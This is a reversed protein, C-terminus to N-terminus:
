TKPGLSSFAALGHHVDPRTVVAEFWAQLRPLSKWDLRDSSARIVTLAAIDALSFSDGAMYRTRELFRGSAVIAELSRQM